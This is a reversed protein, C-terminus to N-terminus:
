LHNNVWTSSETLGGFVLSDTSAPAGGKEKGFCFGGGEGLGESPFTSIGDLGKKGKGPTEKVRPSYRIQRQNEEKVLRCLM